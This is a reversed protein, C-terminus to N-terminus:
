GSVWTRRISRWDEWGDLKWAGWRTRSTRPPVRSYNWVLACQEFAVATQLIKMLVDPDDALRGIVFDQVGPNAFDITPEGGAQRGIRLFSVEVTRLTVLFDHRGPMGAFFAEFAREVDKLLCRPDLTLILLLLLRQDDDLQSDFV